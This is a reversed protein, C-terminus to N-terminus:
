CAGLAALEAVKLILLHGQVEVDQGFGFGASAAGLEVQGV